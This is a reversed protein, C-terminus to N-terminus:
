AEEDFITGVLEALKKATNVLDEPPYQHVLEGTDKEFVKMIFRHIDKDREVAVKHNGVDIARNAEFVLGKVYDDEKARRAATTESVPEEGLSRTSVQLAAGPAKTTEGSAVTSQLRATRVAGTPVLPQIVPAATQVKM